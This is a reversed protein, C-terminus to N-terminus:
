REHSRQRGLLALHKSQAVDLLKGARFDRFDQIEGLAHHLRAEELAHPTQALAGPREFGISTGNTSRTSPRRRQARASPTHWMEGDSAGFNRKKQIIKPNDSPVERAAPAAWPAPMMTTGTWVDLGCSDDMIALFRQNEDSRRVPAM